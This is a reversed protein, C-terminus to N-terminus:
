SKNPIVKNYSPSVLHCELLQFIYYGDGLAAIHGFRRFLKKDCLRAKSRSDVADLVFHADGGKDAGILADLKGTVAFDQKRICPLHKFLGVEHGLMELAFMRLSGAEANGALVIGEGYVGEDVNDSFVVGVGVAEGETFRLGVLDDVINREAPALDANEVEALM